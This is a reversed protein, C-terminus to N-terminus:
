AACAARSDRGAGDLLVKDGGPEGARRADVGDGRAAAGTGGLNGRDGIALSRRQSALDFGAVGGAEAFGGLGRGAGDGRAESLARDVAPDLRM